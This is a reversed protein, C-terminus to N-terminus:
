CRPNVQGNGGIIGFIEGQQVDFSVDDLAWVTERAAGQTIHPQFPRRLINVIDDRLSGYAAERQHSIVYAKSLGNIEIIRTM